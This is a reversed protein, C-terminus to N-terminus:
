PRTPFTLPFHSIMDIQSLQVFLIRTLFTLDSKLKNKAFVKIYCLIDLVVPVNMNLLRKKILYYGITHYSLYKLKVLQINYFHM